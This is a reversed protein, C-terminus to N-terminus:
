EVWQPGRLKKIEKALNDNISQLTQNCEKMDYYKNLYKLRQNETVENTIKLQKNKSKLEEIEANYKYGDEYMDTTLTTITLESAILDEQYQRANTRLTTELELTSKCPEEKLDAVFAEIHNLVWIVSQNTTKSHVDQLANIYAITESKM